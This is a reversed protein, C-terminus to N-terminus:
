LAVVPLTWAVLDFGEGTPASLIVGGYKAVFDDVIQEETMGAQLKQDIESRLPNASGCHLMGCGSLQHNCSCQCVFNESVKKVEPSFIQAAAPSSFLIAPLLILAM